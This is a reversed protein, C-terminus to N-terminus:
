KLRQNHDISGSSSFSIWSQLSFRLFVIEQAGLSLAASKINLDASATFCALGRVAWRHPPPPPSGFLEMHKLQLQRTPRTSPYSSLALTVAESADEHKQTLM